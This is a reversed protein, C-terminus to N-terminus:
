ACFCRCYFLKNYVPWSIKLFLFLQSGCKAPEVSNARYPGSHEDSVTRLIIGVGSGTHTHESTQPQACSAFIYSVCVTCAYSEASTYTSSKTQMRRSSGNAEKMMRCTLCCLCVTRDLQGMVGALSTYPYEHLSLKVIRVDEWEFTKKLLDLKKGNWIFPCAKHKYSQEALLAIMLPFTSQTSNKPGCCARMADNIDDLVVVKPKSLSTEKM